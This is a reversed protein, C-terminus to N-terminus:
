STVLIQEAIKAGTTIMIQVTDVTAFFGNKSDTSGKAMMLTNNIRLLIEQQTKQLKQIQKKVKTIWNQWDTSNVSAKTLVSNDQLSVNHVSDPSASADKTVKHFQKFWKLFSKQLGKSGIVHDLNMPVIHFIISYVKDDVKLDLVDSGLIEVNTM